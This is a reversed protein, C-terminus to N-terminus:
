GKRWPLRLSARVQNLATRSQSPWLAAYVSCRLAPEKLGAAQYRSAIYQYHNAIGSPGLNTLIAWYHKRVVQHYGRADRAIDKSITDAGTCDYEFTPEPVFSWRDFAKALRISTDWEQYSVISEDLYGIAEFASKRAILAQFMPAPAALVDRYVSGALPPVGFLTRNKDSRLVICDSHVVETQEEQLRLLRKELSTPLWVDDSDLFAVWEGAAARIGANRAAQAGQSSRLSIPKLRSDAKAYREIEYLTGDSSGDDVLVM